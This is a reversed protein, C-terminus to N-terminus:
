PNYDKLDRISVRALDQVRIETIAVHARKKLMYEAFMLSGVDGTETIAFRYAVHNITEFLFPVAGRCCRGKVFLSLSRDLGTGCSRAPRSGSGLPAISISSMVALASGFPIRGGKSGIRFRSRWM